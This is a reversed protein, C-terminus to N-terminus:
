ATLEKGQGFRFMRSILEAKSLADLGKGMQTLVHKPEPKVLITIYQRNKPYNM